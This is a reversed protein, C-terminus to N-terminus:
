PLLEHCTECLACEREICPVCIRRDRVAEASWPRDRLLHITYHGALEVGLCVLRSVDLDAFPHSKDKMRDRIFDDIERVHGWSNGARVHGYCGMASWEIDAVPFVSQCVLCKRWKTRCLITPIEPLFGQKTVLAAYPTVVYRDGDPKREVALCVLNEYPVTRELEPTWEFEYGYRQRVFHERPEGALKTLVIIQREDEDYLDRRTIETFRAIAQSTDDTPEHLLMRPGEGIKKLYPVTFLEIVALGAAM